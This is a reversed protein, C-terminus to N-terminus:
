ARGDIRLQITTYRGKVTKVSYTVWIWDEPDITQDTKEVRVEVMRGEEVVYVGSPRQDLDLTSYHLANLYEALAGAEEDLPNDIIVEGDPYVMYFKAREEADYAFPTIM